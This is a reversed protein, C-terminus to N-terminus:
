KKVPILELCVLRDKGRVYLLGHSVLPAAWCPAQLLPEGDKGRLEVASVEEYKTPSIKVLRLPGEEALVILHGDIRLLSTRSLGPVRWMVKGTALEICRLDANNEHRGSCGYVYGESYIPTCWHAQLAKNRGHDADTWLEKVAGPKVEVLAAGPGYTESILVKDSAVVPNAANVSELVRARWPYHFDIKGSAPDFGLLGGRAFVFCWRRGGLTALLPSAYAALEDGIKYRVKGTYKDFAVVASGDGRLAMFDAPNSGKPSGGVVTILLDGEVVPTAGVGFFNQIVNFNAVTDVKWILKGDEAKVCHLMGEPGYAYVRDGDVVPCCRPGGSYSYHDTYETPYEFSWLSEGTESKFARLRQRNRIRDFVFARGRSISPMAYGEGLKLEWVLRPGAKPWPSLIGKEPSVSDGHPGQFCPWDIGDKRTRLDTPLPADPGSAAAPPSEDEPAARVPAPAPAGCGLTTALFM